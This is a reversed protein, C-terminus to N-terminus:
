QVAEKGKPSLLAGLADAAALDDADVAHIYHESTVDSGISHGVRHQITKMPVGIRSMTTINMHRFAYNGCRVGLAEVKARIGLEDLIPNLVRQRFNDMSLPKGGTNRKRGPETVFVLGYSNPESEAILQRVEEALSSSIAFTRVANVTKPTQVKQQWVSQAIRLTRLGVDSTRLGALEGPRMGTEALIRFFVKWRGQAKDIIALTEELTFHYGNGKVVTPLKLLLRGNTGRPFPNHQAYGWAKAMDWMVMLTSISNKVTKPSKESQNVFGQIMELNINRIEYRGFFPVLQVGIVSKESSRTSPKHHIMIEKQWKAAFEAFTITSTPRYDERNVPELRTALAREALRKTPLEATTGLIERRRPRKVQGGPLAIDERWRAIWRDGEKKLSGRQYRRRAM